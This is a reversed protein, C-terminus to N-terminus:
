NQGNLKIGSRDPLLRFVQESDARALLSRDILSEAMLPTSIHLRGTEDRKLTM